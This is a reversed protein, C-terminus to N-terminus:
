RGIRGGAGVIRSRFAAAKVRNQCATCCFRKRNNRSADVYVRDCLPAACVGIRGALDSGIVVALGAAFGASWGVAVSDDFGHFHLQYAAAGGTLDPDLQPRAGFRRLLDNVRAAAGRLDEQEVLAFVTHLESATEVLTTVAESSLRPSRSGVGGIAERVARGLHPRAPQAFPRGHAQGATTTNVLGTAVDLVNQLHSDFSM